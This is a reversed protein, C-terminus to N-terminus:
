GKHPDAQGSAEPERLGRFAFGALIALALGTGAMLGAGLDTQLALWRQLLRAFNYSFHVVIGPLISGTKWAVLGYLWGFLFALPLVIHYERGRSLHAIMFILASVVTAVHVGYREELVKRLFGRYGAEEFVGAALATVLFSSLLVSASCAPLDPIPVDPVALWHLGAMRFAHVAGTGAALTVLALLWERMSLEHACLHERRWGPRNLYRWVLWMWALAAPAVWPVRPTLRVGLEDLVTPSLIGAITIAMVLLVGRLLAPLGAFWNM